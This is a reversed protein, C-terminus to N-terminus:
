APPLGKEKRCHLCIWPECVIGPFTYGLGGCSCCRRREVLRWEPAKEM